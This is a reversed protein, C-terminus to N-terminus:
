DVKLGSLVLQTQSTRVILRDREDRVDTEVVILTRGIHLPRSVSAVAGGRVARIFNTKSEVTTTGQAGDPLNLYACAGGTSDALAMLVGGHLVGGATCLEPAWDLRARVVAPEYRLVTIGLTRAFPMLGHLVQTPDDTTEEAM